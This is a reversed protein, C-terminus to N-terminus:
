SRSFFRSLLRGPWLLARDSAASPAGGASDGRTDRCTSVFVGRGPASTSDTAVPLLAELASATALLPSPVLVFTCLGAFAGVALGVRRATTVGVDDVLSPLTRMVPLTAHAAKVVDCPLRAALLITRGLDNVADEGIATRHRVM